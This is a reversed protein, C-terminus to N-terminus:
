VFDQYRLTLGDVSITRTVPIKDKVIRLTATCEFLDNQSDDVRSIVMDIYPVTKEFLELRTQKIIQDLESLDSFQKKICVKDVGLHYKLYYMTSMDSDMEKKTKRTEQNEAKDRMIHKKIFNRFIM